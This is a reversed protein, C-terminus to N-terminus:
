FKNKCGNNKEFLFMFYVYICFSIQSSFFFVFYFFLFTHIYIKVDDTFLFDAYTIKRESATVEFDAFRTLTQPASEGNPSLPNLASNDFMTNEVLPEDYSDLWNDNDNNTNFVQMPIAPPPMTYIASPASEQKEFTNLENIPPVIM